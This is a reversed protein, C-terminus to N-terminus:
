LDYISIKQRRPGRPYPENIVEKKTHIFEFSEAAKEADAGMHLYHKELTKIRDGTWASLQAITVRPNNAHLSAYTHRMTHPTLEPCNKKAFTEFKQRFDYRYKAKGKEKTPHIVYKRKKWDPFTEQLWSGFAPVLPISRKRGSKPTFGTVLDPSPINILSRKFDFWSPRAMSIEQRRMGALFGCMLVFKLDNDKTGNILNSITEADIVVDRYPSEGMKKPVSVRFGLDHAFRKVRSTYTQATAISKPKEGAETEKKTRPRKVEAFYAKLSDTTIKAPDSIKTIQEFHTVAYGINSAFEQTLEGSAVKSTQYKALEVQMLTRGGKIKGTKRSQVARGRLEEAKAVAEGYDDTDLTVRIQEGAASYRLWYTKGRLFIGPAHRNQYPRAMGQALDGTSFQSACFFIEM